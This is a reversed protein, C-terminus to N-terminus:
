SMNIKARVAADKAELLKYLSIELQKSYTFTNCMWTALNFFKQSVEQLHAPLHDYAFYQIDPFKITTSSLLAYPPPVFSEKVEPAPHEVRQLQGNIHWEKYGSRGVYAPEGGDRHMMGDLFWACSGDEFVLAPETTSHLLGHENRIEKIAMKNTAM